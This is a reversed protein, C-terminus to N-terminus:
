SHTYQNHTFLNVDSDLCITAMVLHVSIFTMIMIMLVVVMMMMLMKM